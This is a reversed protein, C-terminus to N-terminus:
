VVVLVATTIRDYSIQTIHLVWTKPNIRKQEISKQHSRVFTCNPLMTRFQIIHYVYLPLIDYINMIRHCGETRIWESKTLLSWNHTGVLKNNIHWNLSWIDMGKWFNIKKRIFSMIFWFIHPKFYSCFVIAFIQLIQLRYSKVNISDLNFPTNFRGGWFNNLEKGVEFTKTM